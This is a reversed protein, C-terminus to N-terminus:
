PRAAMPLAMDIKLVKAAERHNCVEFVRCSESFDVGKSRLSDALDHVALIGFGEAVVAADLDTCAQEFSKDAHAIFFPNM